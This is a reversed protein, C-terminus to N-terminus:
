FRATSMMRGTEAERPPVLWRTGLVPSRMLEKVIWMVVSLKVERSRYVYIRRLGTRIECRMAKGQLVKASESVM